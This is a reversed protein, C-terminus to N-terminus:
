NRGILYTYVSVLVDSTGRVFKPLNLFFTVMAVFAASVTTIMGFKTKWTRKAVAETKKVLNTAIDINADATIRERVQAYARSEIVQQEVDAVYRKLVETKHNGARVEIKVAEIEDLLRGFALDIREEVRKMFRETDLHPGQRRMPM